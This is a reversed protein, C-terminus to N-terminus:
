GIFTISDGVTAGIVWLDAISCGNPFLLFPATSKAIPFGNTSTGGQTSVYITSTNAPTTVTLSSVTPGGPAVPIPVNAATIYITRSFNRVSPGPLLPALPPEASEEAPPNTDIDPQVTQKRSFNKRMQNAQARNRNAQQIRQVEAIDEAQLEEQGSM